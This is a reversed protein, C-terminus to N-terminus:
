DSHCSLTYVIIVEDIKGAMAAMNTPTITTFSFFIGFSLFRLDWCPIYFLTGNGIHLQESAHNHTKTYFVTLCLHLRCHALQVFSATGWNFTPRSSDISNWLVSDPADFSNYAVTFTAKKWVHKSINNFIPSKSSILSLQMFPSAATKMRWSIMPMKMTRSSVLSQMQLPHKEM